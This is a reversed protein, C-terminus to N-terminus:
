KSPAPKAVPSGPTQEAGPDVERHNKKATDEEKKPPTKKVAQTEDYIKQLNAQQERQKQDLKRTLENMKAQDKKEANRAATLQDLEAKLKAREKKLDDLSTSPAAPDDKIQNSAAAPNVPADGSITLSGAKTAGGRDYNPALNSNAGNAASAAASMLQDGAKVDTGVVTSFSDFSLEPKAVRTGFTGKSTKQEPPTDAVADKLGSNAGSPPSFSQFDLGGSEHSPTDASAAAPAPALTKAFRQAIAQMSGAAIKGEAQEKDRREKEVQQDQLEARQNRLQERTNELDQQLYKDEHPVLRSAKEFYKVAMEYNGKHYYEVGLNRQVRARGRCVPAMRPSPNMKQGWHSGLGFAPSFVFLSPVPLAGPARGAEIDLLQQELKRM